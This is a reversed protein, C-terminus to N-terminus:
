NAIERKAREILSVRMEALDSDNMFRGDDAFFFIECYPLDPEVVTVSTATVHAFLAGRCKILVDKPNDLDIQVSWANDKIFFQLLRRKTLPRDGIKESRTELVAIKKGARVYLRRQVKALIPLQEKDIVEPEETM